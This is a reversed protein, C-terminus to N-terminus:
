IVFAILKDADPVWEPTPTRTGWTAAPFRRRSMPPRTCRPPRARRWWGAISWCNIPRVLPRRGGSRADGDGRHLRAAGRGSAAAHDEGPDRRGVGTLPEDLLLLRAQRALMRALLVRQRQGGSLAQIPRHRLDHVETQELAAAVIERDARRPGRLWGLRATRGMMAVDWVTVPFAWDLTQQQPVYATADRLRGLGSVSVSGASAEVLGLVTKLLTSKGAGNPGIVASFQGAVFRASADELAVQAGYRVTLHEVFIEAPASAPIAAPTLVASASM